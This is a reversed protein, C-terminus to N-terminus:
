AGRGWICLHPRRLRGDEEEEDIDRVGGDRRPHEPADGGRDLVRQSAEGASLAGLHPQDRVIRRELEVVERPRRRLHEDHGLHAGSVRDLVETRVYQRPMGRKVDELDAPDLREIVHNPDVPAAPISASDGTFPSM